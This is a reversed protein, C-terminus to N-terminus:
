LYECLKHCQMNKSIIHVVSVITEGGNSYCFTILM